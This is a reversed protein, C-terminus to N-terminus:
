AGEGPEDPRLAVALTWTLLDAVRSTAMPEHTLGTVPDLALRVWGRETLLLRLYRTGGQERTLVVTADGRPHVLQELVPPVEALGLLDLTAGVLRTDDRGLARVLATAHEPPLLVDDTDGWADAAPPLLSLLEDVLFDPTLLSLEVGPVVGTGVAGPVPGTVRSLGVVAEPRVALASVVGRGDRSTTVELRVPAGALDGVAALTVADPSDGTGQAVQPALGGLGGPAGAADYAARWEAESLRVRLAGRDPALSTM